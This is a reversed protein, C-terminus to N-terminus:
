IKVACLGIIVSSIDSTISASSCVLRVTLSAYFRYCSDGSLITICTITKLCAFESMPVFVDCECLDCVMPM